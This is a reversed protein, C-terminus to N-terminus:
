KKMVKELENFEEETLPRSEIKVNERISKPTHITNDLNYRMDNLAEDEADFEREGQEIFEMSIKVKFYSM